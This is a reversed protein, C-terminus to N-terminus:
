THVLTDMKKNNNNKVGDVLATSDGFTLQDDLVTLAPDPNSHHHHSHSQAARFSQM